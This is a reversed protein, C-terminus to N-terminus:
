NLASDYEPNESPGLGLIEEVLEFGRRSGVDDIEVV